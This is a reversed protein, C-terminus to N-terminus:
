GISKAERKIGLATVVVESLDKNGGLVVAMTSQNGVQIEKSSLGSYSFVLTANPAVSIIFAGNEDSLVANQKGKESITARVLPTGSDDKITGSIAKKEQALVATSMATFCLLALFCEMLKKM